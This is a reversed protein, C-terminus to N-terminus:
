GMEEQEQQNDGEDQNSNGARQPNYPQRIQEYNMGEFGEYRSNERNDNMGRGPSGSNDNQTNRSNQSMISTKVQEKCYFFLVLKIRATKFPMERLYTTEQLSFHRLNWLFGKVSRGRSFERWGLFIFSFRIQNSM